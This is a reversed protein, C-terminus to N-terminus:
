VIGTFLNEDHGIDVILVNLIPSKTTSRSRAMELSIMGKSREALFGGSFLIVVSPPYLGELWCHIGSMHM